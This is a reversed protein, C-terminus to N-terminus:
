QLQYLTLTKGGRDFGANRVVLWFRQDNVAGFRHRIGKALVRAKRVGKGDAIKFIDLYEPDARKRAVADANVPDVKLALWDGSSQLSKPDYDTLKQDLELTKMNGGRWIEIANNMQAMRVFDLRGGADALVTFRRKQDFLDEIKKKEIKGTILDLTGEQDVGKQDEKRDWEGAKIGYAKTWGDSWHNVRFDLKKELGNADIVLPKGRAVRKGNELALLEVTHTTSGTREAMRHVAIRPKGDRTIVAIDDAPAVRYLATGAPKKKNTDALEVLAAVQKGESAGVVFVRTGVFQLATPQLTITSLDVIQEDSKGVTAVHLAATNTGDAIVYGVRDGDVAVVDDIFGSSASVTLLPQAGLLPTAESKPQAHATAALAVLAIGSIGRGM